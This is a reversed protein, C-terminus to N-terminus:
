WSAFTTLLFIGGGVAPDLVKASKGIGRRELARFSARVMLEAIPRPTYYGGERRQKAPAHNRLYLEYAQSLVGVPIHAFDLNDWKEEWGLFLQGDPARRLINGLALCGHSALKEFTGASLPMLDGNFKEDLWKSTNEAEGRNDFLHAATSPDAMEDPLLRRDALFRTFLARGVLSIADEDPLGLEILTKTSGTLLRLVISSIWNRHTITAHPRLNGLRAFVASRAVDEGAWDVRAQQITKRDLAVRYVDLSGPAVVAVYPADGRMALLRRVRHLDEDDALSDAAIVFVLPTGQWEYVGEVIGLTTHGGRRASVLTAYPLLDPGDDDLLRLGAPDAGFDAIWSELNAM